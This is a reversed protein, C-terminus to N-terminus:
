ASRRGAALAATGAPCQERHAARCPRWSPGGTVGVATGDAVIRWRSGPPVLACPREGPELLVWRGRATRRWEAPAGCLGCRGFVPARPGGQGPISALRRPVRSPDQGSVVPSRAAGGGDGGGGTVTSAAVPPAPRLASLVGPLVEALPVPDPGPSVGGVRECRDCVTM